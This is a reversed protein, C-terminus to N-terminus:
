SPELRPPARRIEKSFTSLLEVRDLSKVVYDLAGANFAERAEKWDPAATAVVVRADHQQQRIAIVAEGTNPVDWLDLIILESAKGQSLGWQIHRMADEVSSVISVTGLPTLAEQIAHQWQDDSSILLIRHTPQQM